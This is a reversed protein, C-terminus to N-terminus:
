SKKSTIVHVESWVREVRSSGCKTCKVKKPDYDKISEIVQFEKGCANCRFEYVPMGGEQSGHFCFGNWSDESAIGISTEDRRNQAISSANPPVDHFVWELDTKAADFRGFGESLRDLLSRAVEFMEVVLDLGTSDYDFSRMAMMVFAVHVVNANPQIHGTFLDDYRAIRGLVGLVLIEVEGDVVGQLLGRSLELVVDAAAAPLDFLVRARRVRADGAEEFVLAVTKELGGIAALDVEVFVADEVTGEAPKSHSRFDSERLLGPLLARLGARNFDDALLSLV